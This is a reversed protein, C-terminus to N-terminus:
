RLQLGVLFLLKMNMTSVNSKNMTIQCNKQLMRWIANM